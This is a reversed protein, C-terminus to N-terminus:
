LNRLLLKKTYIFIYIYSIIIIVRFNYVIPDNHLAPLIIHNYM